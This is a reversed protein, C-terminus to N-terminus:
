AAAGGRPGSPEPALHTKAIAWVGLLAILGGAAGGAPALWGPLDHRPTLWGLFWWLYGGMAAGALLALGHVHLPTGPEPLPAPPEPAADPVLAGVAAPAAIPQAAAKSRASRRAHEASLCGSCTAVGDLEGRHRSCASHGCFLCVVLGETAECANCSM